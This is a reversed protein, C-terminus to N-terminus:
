TLSRRLADVIERTRGAIDSGSACIAILEAENSSHRGLRVTEALRAVRRALEVRDEPLLTESNLALSLLEALLASHKGEYTNQFDQVVTNVPKNIFTTPGTFTLNCVSGQAILVDQGTLDAALLARKAAEVRGLAERDAWSSSAALARLADAARTGRVMRDRVEHARVEPLPERTSPTDGVARHITGFLERFGAPNASSIPFVIRDNETGGFLVL